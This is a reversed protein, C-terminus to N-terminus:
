LDIIMIGEDYTDIDEDLWTQGTRHRHFRITADAGDLALIIRFRVGPFERVLRRSTEFSFQTGQRLVTELSPNEEDLYDTVALKNLYCEIGTEDQLWEMSIGQCRIEFLSFFICDTGETMSFGKDLLEALPTSLETTGVDPSELGLEDLVETFARNWRM